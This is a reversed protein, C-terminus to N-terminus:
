PPQIRRMRTGKRRAPNLYGAVRCDKTSEHPLLLPLTPYLRLTEKVVCQVYDMSAVDDENVIRERGVVLEIEEQMKKAVDPNKIVSSM